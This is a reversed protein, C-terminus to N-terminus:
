NFHYHFTYRKFVSDCVCARAMLPNNQNKGVESLRCRQYPAKEAAHASGAFFMPQEPEQWHEAGHPSGM